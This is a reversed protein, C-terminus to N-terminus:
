CALVDGGSVLECQAVGNSSVYLQQEDTHELTQKGSCTEWAERSKVKESARWEGIIIPSLTVRECLM